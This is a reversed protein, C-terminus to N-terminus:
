TTEHSDGRLFQGSIFIRDPFLTHLRYALNRAFNGTRGRIRFAADPNKDYDGSAGM